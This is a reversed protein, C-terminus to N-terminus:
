FHKKRTRNVQLVWLRWFIWFRSRLSVWYGKGVFHHQSVCTKSIGMHTTLHLAADRIGAVKSEATMRTRSSTTSSPTFGSLSSNGERAVKLLHKGTLRAKHLGGSFAQPQASLRALLLNEQQTLATRKSLSMQDLQSM